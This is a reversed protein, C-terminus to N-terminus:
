EVSRGAKALAITSIAGAFTSKKVEREARAGAETLQGAQQSGAKSVNGIAGTVATKGVVVETQEASKRILMAVAKQLDPLAKTLTGVQDKVTSLEAKLTADAEKDPDGDDAQGGIGSDGAAASADVANQTAKVAAKEKGAIAAEGPRSTDIKAVGGNSEGAAADVAAQTAKVAAKEEKATAAEGPRSTDFKEVKDCMAKLTTTCEGLGKQLAEIAKTINSPDFGGTPQAALPEKTTSQRTDVAAETAGAVKVAGLRKGDKEDVTGQVDEAGVRSGNKEKLSEVAKAVIADYLAPNAKQIEEATAKSIDMDNTETITKESGRLKAIIGMIGSVANELAKAIGNDDAVRRAPDVPQRIETDGEERSKLLVHTAEPVAPSKCLGVRTIRVDSLENYGDEKKTAM